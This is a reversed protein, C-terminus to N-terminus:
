PVRNRLTIVNSFTRQLRGSNVAADTSVRRDASDLTLAIAIADVNGWDVGGPTDAAVFDSGGAVRYTVQMNSVGAVVEETVLTAGSGLRQRYLSRGGEGPRGNNGIYWDTAGLRAILSNPNFAYVNGTSTACSTPYGLGQSCNGPVAGGIEHAVTMAVDDYNSAQFVASHDFDCVILIDNVVFNSAAANIAFSAAAADHSVLSLGEGEAGQLVLSDTGDVRQAVATGFVVAPDSVAGDYGRIVFWSDWWSAAPLVNAVRGKNDCGNIGTQRVDRALLEFATRASEQVQSLAENTRYSQKNSLLVSVAAGTVVLGLLMAIMLEVLTMGSSVAPVSRLPQRSV